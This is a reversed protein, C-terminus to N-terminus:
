TCTHPGPPRPAPQPPVRASGAFGQVRFGWGGQSEAVRLGGPTVVADHGDEGREDYGEDQQGGAIPICVAFLRGAVDAEEAPRRGDVCCERVQVFILHTLLAM